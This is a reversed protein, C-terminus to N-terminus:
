DQAQITTPRPTIGHKHLKQRCPHWAIRAMARNVEM